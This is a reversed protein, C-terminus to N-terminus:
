ELLTTSEIPRWLSQKESKHVFVRSNKRKSLSSDELQIDLKLQTLKEYLDALPDEYNKALEQIEKYKDRLCKWALAFSCSPDKSNPPLLQWVEQLAKM